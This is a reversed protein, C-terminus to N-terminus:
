EVVKDITLIAEPLKDNWLSLGFIIFSTNLSDIKEIKTSIAFDISVGKAIEGPEIQRQSENLKVVRVQGSRILDINLAQYLKLTDIFANTKNQFKTAVLIPRENYKFLYDSLWVGKILENISEEITKELKQQDIVVQENKASQKIVSCGLFLLVVILIAISKYMKM